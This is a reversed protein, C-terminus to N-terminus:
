FDELGYPDFTELNEDGLAYVSPQSEEDGYLLDYLDRREERLQSVSGVKKPKEKKNEATSTKEVLSNDTSETKGNISNDDSATAGNVPNTAMTTKASAKKPTRSKATTRPRRAKKTATKQKTKPKVATPPQQSTRTKPAVSRPQVVRPADPITTDDNKTARKVPPQPNRQQPSPSIKRQAVTRRNSIAELTKRRYEADQWKAKVAASIKSRHAQNHSAGSGAKRRAIKAMMTERFDPDQWKKRLTESIKQRVSPNSNAGGTKELMSNRYDNDNAWRARMSAAIKARTEPSHVFGRRVKSPDVQRRKVEGAAYKEKLIRSIKQKTEPTLRYGGKETRRARREAKEKEKLARQQEHYEEETVGMQAIKQLFRQRNKARVGAAIRARTEESQKKGKNWPTKGKNAASIKAKSTSTHSYGGNETRRPADLETNNNNNNSADHPLLQQHALPPPHRQQVSHEFSVQKTPGPFSVLGLDSLEVGNTQTNKSATETINTAPAEKDLMHHMPLGRRKGRLLTVASHTPLYFSAWRRQRRQWALRGSYGSYYAHVMTQLLGADLLLLLVVGAVVVDCVNTARRRTRRPLHNSSETDGRHCHQCEVSPAEEAADFDRRRKMKKNNNNNNSDRLPARDLVVVVVVVSPVSSLYIYLPCCDAGLFVISLSPPRINIFVDPHDARRTQGDSSVCYGGGLELRPASTTLLELQLFLFLLLRLFLSNVCLSM